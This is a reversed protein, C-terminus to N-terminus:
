KPLSCCVLVPGGSAPSPGPALSSHSLFWLIWVTVTGCSSTRNPRGLSFLTKNWLPLFVVFFLRVFAGTLLISPLPSEATWRLTSMVRCCAAPHVIFCLDGMKMTTKLPM